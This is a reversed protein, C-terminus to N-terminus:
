HLLPAFAKLSRVKLVIHGIRDPHIMATGGQQKTREAFPAFQLADAPARETVPQLATERRGGAGRSRDAPPMGMKKIMKAAGWFGDLHPYDTAWLITDAGLYDALLKLSREVPEFSIFCQRRYIESPRMSLGTDNMGRTTTIGTWGIWGDRWGAAARNWFLSACNAPVQRVGRVHDHQDVGRDDRVYARGRPAGRRRAQLSGDRANGTRERRRRPHRHRLRTGAGGAWLPYYDRDHLPRGNYPNPRVFGTRFGLSRRAFRMEDILQEVSSQMPLMAAGFLRDPYPKCYDALWRNYARCAAAAADPDKMGGLFLGLSPYLFAADIGERDMDVIRAHPDFGGKRGELYPMRTDVEGDRSGISGLVGLTAPEKGRRRLGFDFSEDVFFSENGEADIVLKPCHDRYKPEIYREWLDPPELIHGDADIVNYERAM